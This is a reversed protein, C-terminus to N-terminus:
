RLAHHEDSVANDECNQRKLSLIPRRACVCRGVCVCVCRCGWVPVTRHAVMCFKAAQRVGVSLVFEVQRCANTVFERIFCHEKSICIRM